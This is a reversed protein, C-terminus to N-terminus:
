SVPTFTYAPCGPMADVSKKLGLFNSMRLIAATECYRAWFTIPSVGAWPAAGTMIHQRMAGSSSMPSGHSETAVLMAVSLVTYFADSCIHDGIHKGGQHITICYYTIVMISTLITTVAQQLALKSYHWYATIGIQKMVLTSATM